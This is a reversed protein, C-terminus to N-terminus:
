PRAAWRCHRAHRHARPPRAAMARRRQRRRCLPPPSLPEGSACARAVRSFFLLWRGPALLPRFRRPVEMFTNTDDVTLACLGFQAAMHVVRVSPPLPNMQFFRALSIHFMDYVVGARCRSFFAAYNDRESVLSSQLAMFTSVFRHPEVLPIFGKNSDVLEIAPIVLLEVGLPRVMEDLMRAPADSDTVVGALTYGRAQLMEVAKMAQTLHGTGSGCFAVIFRDPEGVVYRMASPQDSSAGMAMLSSIGCKAGAAIPGKVCAPAWCDVM